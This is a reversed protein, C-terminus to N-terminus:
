KGKLNKLINERNESMLIITLQDPLKFKKFKLFEGKNNIIFKPLEISWRFSNWKPIITDGYYFDTNNVPFLNIVLGKYEISCNIDYLNKFFLLQKIHLKKQRHKTKKFYWFMSDEKILEPLIKFINKNIIEYFKNVVLDKFEHNITPDDFIKIISWSHILKKYYIPNDKKILDLYLFSFSIEKPIMLVGNYEFYFNNYSGNLKSADIIKKDVKDCINNFTQIMFNNDKNKMDQM